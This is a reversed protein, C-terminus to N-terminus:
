ENAWEFEGSPEDYLDEPKDLDFSRIQYSLISPLQECFDKAKELSSFVAVVDEDEYLIYIKM